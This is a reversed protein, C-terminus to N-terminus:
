VCVLSRAPSPVLPLEPAVSYCVMLCDVLHAPIWSPCGLVSVVLLQGVDPQARQLPISRYSFHEFHGGARTM